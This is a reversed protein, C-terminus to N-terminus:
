RRLDIGIKRRKTQNISTEEGVAIHGFICGSALAARQEAQKNERTGSVLVVIACGQRWMLSDKIPRRKTKQWRREMSEHEMWHPILNNNRIQRSLEMGKQTAM